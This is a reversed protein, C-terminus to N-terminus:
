KSKLRRSLTGYAGISLLGLIVGPEPVSVPDIPEPNFGKFEVLVSSRAGGGTIPQPDQSTWKMIVKGVMSTIPTDSSFFKAESIDTGSFLASTYTEDLDCTSGCGNIDTIEVSISTGDAVLGDNRNRISAALAFNKWIGSALSDYTVTKDGITLQSIGNAATYRIDWVVAQNNGWDIQFNGALDHEAGNPGIAAEYDGMGNVGARWEAEFLRLPSGFGPPPPTSAPGSDVLDITLASAPQVALGAATMGLLMPVIQWKKM